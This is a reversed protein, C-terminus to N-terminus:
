LFDCVPSLFYTVRQLGGSGSLVLRAKIECFSYSYCLFGDACDRIIGEVIGNVAKEIVGAFDTVEAGRLNLVYNVFPRDVAVKGTSRQLVAKEFCFRWALLDSRRYVIRRSGRLKVFRPGTHRRRMDELTRVSKELYEAAQKTTLYMGQQELFMVEAFKKM